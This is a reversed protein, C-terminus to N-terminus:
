FNGPLIADPADTLTTLKAIKELGFMYVGLLESRKQLFTQRNANISANEQEVLKSQQKLYSLSHEDVSSALNGSTEASKKGQTHVTVSADEGNGCSSELTQNLISKRIVSRDPRLVVLPLIESLVRKRKASSTLETEIEERPRKMSDRIGLLSEHLTIGTKENKAM